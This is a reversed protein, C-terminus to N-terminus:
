RSLQIMSWHVVKLSQLFVCPSLGVRLIRTANVIVNLDVMEILDITM